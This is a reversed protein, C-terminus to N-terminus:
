APAPARPAEAERREVALLRGAAIAVIAAAFSMLAGMEAADQAAGPPLAVTAILLPVALGISAVRGIVLPDPTRMGLPPGLGLARAGLRSIAPIGFPKGIRIGAPELWTPAGIASPRAGATLPGLFFPIVGVAVKLLNQMHDLLDALHREAESLVGFAGDAHPVAPVIPLLGSAPRLGAQAFGFRIPADAIPHPWFSPAGRAWTSRPRPRDGGDLRRPPWNALLLAGVAAFASLLLWAPALDGEPHLVALIVLGAADDAIALLLLVRVAPHGAGFVIRGVLYSLAIDTATPIAWGRAAAGHTESGLVAALGLHVAVPGALGGATALLPTAAKRGRLVGNGLCVEKAAVASLLAMLVDDVLHHITPVREASSLRSAHGEGVFPAWREHRIGILDDFWPPAEVPHHHFAADVDTWALATATGVILPPSRGALFNWVRDM